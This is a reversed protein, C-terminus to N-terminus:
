AVIRMPFLTIFCCAATGAAAAGPSLRLGIEFKIFFPLLLFFALSPIVPRFIQNSLGSIRTTDSTEIYLRILAPISVIPLSAILAALLSHRRAIESIALVLLGSLVIRAAYHRTDM